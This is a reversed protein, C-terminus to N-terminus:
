VDVLPVGLYWDFSRGPMWGETPDLCAQVWAPTSDADEDEDEGKDELTPGNQEKSRTKPSCAVFGCMTANFFDNYLGYLSFGVVATANWGVGSV